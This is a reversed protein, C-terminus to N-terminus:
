STPGARTRSSRCPRAGHGAAILDAFIVAALECAGASIDSYHTTRSQEGAVCWVVELDRRNRVLVLALRMLGGNGDSKQRTEPVRFAGTRHYNGLVRLTNQGIGVCVGTSTNAGNAAWGCFRDLLDKHDLEPAFLLSGALCLAIATDDTLAGAPLKFVGGFRMGTVPEFSARDLAPETVPRGLGDSGGNQPASSRHHADPSM